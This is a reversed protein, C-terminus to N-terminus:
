KKVVSNKGRNKAEYLAKDARIFLDSASDEKTHDWSSVGSSLTISPITKEKVKKLILDAVQVGQNITITPSYLALEEGGWRAAVDIPETYSRIIEAAKKLVEDGIHHGYRDNVVKFDDIDFLILTGSKQTVIQEELYNRSYLDTLYDTIVAKELKETLLANALALTSHRILAQLLKFIDFSFYNSEEHMITIVGQIDGGHHM